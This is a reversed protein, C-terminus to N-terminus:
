SQQYDYGQQHDSPIDAPTFSSLSLAQFSFTSAAERFAPIEVDSVEQSKRNAKPEVILQTDFRLPSSRAVM